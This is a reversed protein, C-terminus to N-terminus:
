RVGTTNNQDGAAGEEYMITRNARSIYFSPSTGMSTKIM